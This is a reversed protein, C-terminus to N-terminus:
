VTILKGDTLFGHWGDTWDPYPKVLISPTLTPLEKNGNWNWNSNSEKVQIPLVCVDSWKDGYKVIIYTDNNIFCWDGKKSDNDFKERSTIFM